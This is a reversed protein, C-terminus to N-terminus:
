ADGGEEVCLDSLLLVAASANRGECLILGLRFITVVMGETHLRYVEGATPMQEIFGHADMLWRALANPSFTQFSFPTRQAITPTFFRTTM